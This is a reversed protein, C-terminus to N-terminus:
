FHKHNEIWDQPTVYGNMQCYEMYYQMNLFLEDKKITITEFPQYYVKVNDFIKWFESADAVTKSHFSKYDPLLVGGVDYANDKIYFRDDGTSEVYKKIAQEYVPLLKKNFNTLHM